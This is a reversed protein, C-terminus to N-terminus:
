YDGTVVNLLPEGAAYRRVQDGVLAYSRRLLGGVAGGIHPTLLVNPLAFWPHGPPLPEPDTVDLAAGLRGAVLEATLAASDVVPGRAVNVLLAGDPMAALFAADVLGTTEKTLPVVLIVVDAHPLLEPLESVAHVGPRATRAVLTLSVEFPTLRAAVGEGISGAGVILVRKGAAEDTIRRDWEGRAQARAFHPFEHLYALTAAVAWESTPATHIGRGDCLTINAPLRGVWNDAGATILQVVELDPLRALVQPTPGAGLFPPVWFRVGSVDVDSSTEPDAVVVEVEAPLPGMLAIGQEHVVCVRVIVL